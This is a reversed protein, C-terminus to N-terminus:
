GPRRERTPLAVRLRSVTASFTAIRAFPGDGTPPLFVDVDLPVGDFSPVRASSTPCVLAGDLPACAPGFPAPAAANATPALTLATLVALAGLAGLRRIRM